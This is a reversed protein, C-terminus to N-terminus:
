GNSSSSSPQAGLRDGDVYVDGTDSDIDDWFPAILNNPTSTNTIAYNPPAVLDGTTANYFM